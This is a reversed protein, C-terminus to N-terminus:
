GLLKILKKMKSLVENLHENKEYIFSNMKEYPIDLVMLAIEVEKLCENKGGGCILINSLGTLFDMLDPINICDDSFELLERVNERGYRQIFVDWFEEDLERTDNINYEIMMKVLGVIEEDDISNDICYRFFAYGKDYFIAFDYIIDENIGLEYLWHKYEDEKIMGLTDYGNYLFVIRGDHQNIMNVWEDMNFGIYNAYEPQIDVNLITKGSTKSENIPNASGRNTGLEYEGKNSIPNAKGRQTGYDYVGTNSIPNAKGRKVRDPTPSNSTSTGSSDSDSEENITKPNRHMLQKHTFDKNDGTNFVFGFRQYFDKLRNVNGGYSSDPTLTIQYGYEDALSVLDSMFATGVGSDRLSPPVIFGTLYISKYKEQPYLEFRINQYKNKLLEVIPNM